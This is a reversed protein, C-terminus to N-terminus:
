LPKKAFKEVPSGGDEIALGAVKGKEEYFTVRTHPSQTVRFRSRGIPLLTMTEGQANAELKGDKLEIVIKESGEYQGAFRSLASPKMAIPKGGPFQTPFPPRHVDKMCSADVSKADATRLFENIIKDYCPGVGALGGFGHGQSPIIVLRGNPFGRLMRKAHYSATAPDDEGNMVLLPLNSKVPELVSADLKRHPWVACAAKQDAARWASMFTGKAVREAEPLDIFDVDESCTVALHLGRSHEGINFKWALEEEAAPGFNGQAAEHVVAPVLSSSSADYLLARLGETYRDRAFSITTMKGNTPDLVQVEVPGKDFRHLSAQLDGAPNPFAKHCGPDKACDAFVGDIALQADKPVTLPYRTDTPTTGHMLVARIHQPHRRIMELAARTGYSVGFLDLKDYGLAARLDEVDDLAPASGYWTLDAKDKLDAACRAVEDPDYFGGLYSQLNGPKGSKCPLPNSGGTGRLDVFLLDRTDRVPALQQAVPAASDTAAQGPGGSFFAVAEDVTGAQKAPIVIFRLGIKRGQRTDRNEWVEFTGCRAPGDFGRVSCPTAPPPEARVATPLLFVTAVLSLARM